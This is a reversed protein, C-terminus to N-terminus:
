MLVPEAPQPAFNGATGPSPSAEGTMCIDQADAQQFIDRARALDGADETHVCILISGKKVKREYRRAELRPLGMALFGGAIGGLTMGIATASLTGVIPGAAIFPGAGPVALEGIGPLWALAGGIAAAELAKTNEGPAGNPTARPKAFLVSIHQNDFSESKLHDIIQEALDRTGTLCFVSKKTM